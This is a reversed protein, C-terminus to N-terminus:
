RAATQDFLVPLKMALAVDGRMQLKGRMFAAMPELRGMLLDIFVGSDVTMTVNPADVVGKSSTCTGEHIRVHWDSAQDGTFHFQVTASITGAQHALFAKPMGTMIEAISLQTM